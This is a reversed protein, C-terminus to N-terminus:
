DQEQEELEEPVPELAGKRGGGRRRLRILLIGLLALGGAVGLVVYFLNTSTVPPAFEPFSVEVSEDEPISFTVESTQEIGTMLYTTDLRAVIRYSGLPQRFTHIGNADTIGGDVLEDGRYLTLSVGALPNGDKDVAKVPVHYVQVTLSLSTSGANVTRTEDFVLVDEWWVKLALEGGPLQLSLTGDTGTTGGAKFGELTVETTAGELPMGEQDVVTLAVSFISLQLDLSENAGLSLGDVGGVSAGLWNAEVRYLGKPLRSVLTGNADSLQSDAILARTVDTVTVHVAAVTQDAQDRTRITLYFVDALVVHVDNSDVAVAKVGVEVGSWIIRLTYSGGATRTLPIDGQTDTTLPVDSTTGNPHTLFVTADALPQRADDVVRLIPDYVGLTLPIAEDENVVGPVNVLVELVLVAQWFGRATYNGTGPVGTLNVAGTENSTGLAALISGDWLELRTQDLPRNMADKLLFNVWIIEGVALLVTASELHGGYTEDGPRDPFRFHFGTKDATEVTVNYTGKMKPTDPWNLAFTSAFSTDNGTTQAMPEQDFLLTGDPAELTLNVWVIDYGGFPDTITANFTINDDSQFFAPEGDTENLARIQSVAIRTVAPVAVRSPFDDSGWAIRKTVTANSDLVLVVELRSGAEVTVAPSIDADVTYESFHSTVFSHTDKNAADGEDLITTVAGDKHAYLGLGLTLFTTGDGKANLYRVWLFARITGNLVLDGALPPDIFWRFSRQADNFEEVVEGTTPLSTNMLFESQGGITATANQFYLVKAKAESSSQAAVTGVPALLATFAVLLLLACVSLATTRRLM